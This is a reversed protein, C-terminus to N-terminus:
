SAAPSTTAAPMAMAAPAIPRPTTADLPEAAGPPEGSIALPLAVFRGTPLGEPGGNVVVLGLRPGPSKGPLAVAFAGTLVPLVAGPEGVLPEPLLTLWPVVSVAAGALVEVCVAASAGERGEVVSGDAEEIGVSEPLTSVTGGVPLTGLVLAGLPEVPLM